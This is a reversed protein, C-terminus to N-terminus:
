PKSLNDMLVYPAIESPCHNEWIQESGFPVLRALYHAIVNGDRRVHSWSVFDLFKSVFMIDDLVSDFDSFYTVAKSLRNITVQSDSEVIVHKLGYRRALKLGFLIAKGEAIEPPWCGRSRRTGAFLVEGRDNRAVAGVGVWGEDRLSADCNIKIFDPPHSEM